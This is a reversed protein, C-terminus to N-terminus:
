ETDNNEEEINEYEWGLLLRVMFQHFKCPLKKYVSIYLSENIRLSGVPKPIDATYIYAEDENIEYKGKFDNADNM